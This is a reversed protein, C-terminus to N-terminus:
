VIFGSPVFGVDAVVGRKGVLLEDAMIATVTFRGRNVVTAMCM